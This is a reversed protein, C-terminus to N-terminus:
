GDDAEIDANRVDIIYWMERDIDANRVHQIFFKLSMIKM